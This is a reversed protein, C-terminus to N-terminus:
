NTGELQKFLIKEKFTYLFHLSTYAVLQQTIAKVWEPM